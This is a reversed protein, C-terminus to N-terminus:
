DLIRKAIEPDPRSRYLVIYFQQLQLGSATLCTSFKLIGSGFRSTCLSRVSSVVSSGKSGQRGQALALTSVRAQRTRSHAVFVRVDLMSGNIPGCGQEIQEKGVLSRSQPCRVVVDGALVDSGLAGLEPYVCCVTNGALTDKQTTTGACIGIRDCITSICVILKAPGARCAAFVGFIERRTRPRTCQDGNCLSYLPAPDPAGPRTRTAM